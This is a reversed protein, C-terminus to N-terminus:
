AVDQRSAFPGNGPSQGNVAQTRDKHRVPGPHQGVARQGLELVTSAVTGRTRAHRYNAHAHGAHHGLVMTAVVAIVIVAIL